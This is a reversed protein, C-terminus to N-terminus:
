KQKNQTQNMYNISCVALVIVLTSFLILTFNKLKYNSEILSQREIDPTVMEINRIDIM